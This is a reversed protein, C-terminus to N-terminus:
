EPETRVLYAKDLHELLWSKAAALADAQRSELTVRVKYDGEGWVPYSGVAVSAFQADLESLTPALVGEGVNYYLSVQSLPYRGLGKILHCFMREFVKPVGPLVWVKGMKHAPWRTDEFFILECGVPVRAMKRWPSAPDESYHRALLAVLERREELAVGFAKAVASMTLDDHTPGIGGSTIVWRNRAQVRHIAEVIAEERDGVVCLESLAIGRARLREIVFPGNSDKTKGSLLEDGILILAATDFSDGM